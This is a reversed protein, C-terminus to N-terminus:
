ESVEKIGEFVYNEHLKITNDVLASLQYDFISSKSKNFSVGLLEGIYRLQKGSRLQLPSKPSITFIFPVNNSMIMKMIKKGSRVLNSFNKNNDSFLSSLLIEFCKNNQKMLSCLAGDIQSSGMHLDITIYDIRRDHAAWKLLDKDESQLSIIEFERRKKSLARVLEDKTIKTFTKRTALLISGKEKIELFDKFGIKLKENSVYDTKLLNYIYNPSIVTYEENEFNDLFADRESISLDEFILISILLQHAIELYAEVSSNQKLSIYNESSSSTNSYLNKNKQM